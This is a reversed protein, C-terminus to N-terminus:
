FSFSFGDLGPARLDNFSFVTNKVEDFTFDNVLEDHNLVCNGYCTGTLLFRPHLNIILCVEFSPTYNIKLTRKLTLNRTMM